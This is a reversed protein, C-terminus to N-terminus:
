QPFNANEYIEQCFASVASGLPEGDKLDSILANLASETIDANGPLIYEKLTKSGVSLSLFVLVICITLLVSVLLKSKQSMRSCYPTKILENGYKISYGM